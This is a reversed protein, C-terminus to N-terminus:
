VVTKISIVKNNFFGDPSFAALVQIATNPCLVNSVEQLSIYACFRQLCTSLLFIVASCSFSINAEKM